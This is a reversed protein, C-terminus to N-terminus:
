LRQTWGVHFGVDATNDFHVLNETVAVFLVRSSGFACKLGLSTQLSLQGLEALHLDRFPSQSVTVQAIASTRTNFIGHEYAVMGSVVTQSTTQLTRGPGLRLVGVSAHLCSKAWFRGYLAQVGVDTSGSSYLDAERGTPIKVLAELSLYAHGPQKTIAYKGSLVTDGFGSSPEHESFFQLGGSSVFVAYQKRPAGRRGAQGLGFTDHFGEITSDLFGGSFDLAQLTVGLQIRHGFGRRIALATRFTEGDLYFANHTAQAGAASRLFELTVTERGSRQELRDTVANSKAFTNTLTAILDVQWRGDALVDASEPDFALFGMGLLFQDRIRLPGLDEFALPEGAWAPLALVITLLVAAWTRIHGVLEERVVGLLAKFGNALM